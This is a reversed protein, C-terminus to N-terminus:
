LRGRVRMFGAMWEFGSRLDFTAENPLETALPMEDLDEKVLQLPKAGDRGALVLDREVVEGEDVQTRVV